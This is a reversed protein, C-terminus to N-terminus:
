MVLDDHEFVPVVSSLHTSSALYNKKAKTSSPQKVADDSPPLAAPAASPASDRRLSLRGDLPTCAYAAAATAVRVVKSQARSRSWLCLVTILILAVVVAGIVIITADNSAGAAERLNSSAGSLGEAHSLPQPPPPPPSPPSSPPPRPPWVTSVSTSIDSAALGLTAAVEAAVVNGVPSASPTLGATLPRVVSVTAALELTRHATVRATSGVGSAVLTSLPALASTVDADTARFVTRSVVIELSTAQLNRPSLVRARRQTGFSAVCSSITRNPCAADETTGLLQARQSETNYQGDAAELTFSSREVTQVSVAAAAEDTGTAALSSLVSSRAAMALAAASTASLSSADTLSVAVTVAV